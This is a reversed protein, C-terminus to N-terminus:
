LKMLLEPAFYKTPLDLSSAMAPYGELSAAISSRTSFSFGSTSPLSLSSRVSVIWLSLVPRKTESTVASTTRKASPSSSAGTPLPKSISSTSATYVVHLKTTFIKLRPRIEGQINRAQGDDDTGRVLSFARDVAGQEADYAVLKVHRVDAIGLVLGKLKRKFVVPVGNNSGSRFPAGNGVPYALVLKRREVPVNRLNDLFEIQALDPDAIE